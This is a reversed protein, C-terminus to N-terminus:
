GRSARHTSDVCAFFEWLGVQDMWLSGAGSEGEVQRGAASRCPCSIDWWVDLLISVIDLHFNFFEMQEWGESHETGDARLAPVSLLVCLRHSHQERSPGRRRSSVNWSHVAVPPHPSDRQEAALAAPSTGVLRAQTNGLVTIPADMDYDRKDGWLPLGPPMNLNSRVYRGAFRCLNYAHMYRHRNRIKRKTTKTERGAKHKWRTKQQKASNEKWFIFWLASSLIAAESPVGVGFFCVWFFLFM